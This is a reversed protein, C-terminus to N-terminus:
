GSQNFHSTIYNLIGSLPEVIYPTQVCGSNPPPEVVTDRDGVVLISRTTSLDIPLVPKDGKVPVGNKLLVM